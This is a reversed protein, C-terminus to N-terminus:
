KLREWDINYNFFAQILKNEVEKGCMKGTLYIYAGAFEYGHIARRGPLGPVMVHALEHAIVMKNWAWKTPLDIEGSCGIRCGTAWVRNYSTVTVKQVPTKNTWAKRKIFRQIFRNAESLSAFDQVAFETLTREALYLRERQTDSPFTNKSGKPRGAM